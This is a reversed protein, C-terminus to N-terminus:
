HVCNTELLSLALGRVLPFGQIFEAELMPCISWTKRSYLTVSSAETSLEVADAPRVPSEAELPHQGERLEHLSYVPIVQGLDNWFPDPLRRLSSLSPSKSSDLHKPLLGQCIAKCRM